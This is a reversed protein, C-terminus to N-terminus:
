NLKHRFCIHFYNRIDLYSTVGDSLSSLVTTALYMKIWDLNFYLRFRGTRVSYNRGGFPSPSIDKSNTFCVLGEMLRVDKGNLVESHSISIERGILMYWLNNNQWYYLQVWKVAGVDPSGVHFFLKPCISTHFYPVYCLLFSFVCRNNLTM